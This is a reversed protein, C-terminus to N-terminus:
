NLMYPWSGIRGLIHCSLSVGHNLRSPGAHPLPEPSCFPAHDSLSISSPLYFSVSECTEERTYGVRLHTQPSLIM